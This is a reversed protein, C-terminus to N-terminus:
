STKRAKCVEVVRQCTNEDFMGIHCDEKPINLTKSLWAYAEARSMKKSKWIPDFAAHARSKAARLAANALRGLPIGDQHCGVWAQCMHCIYFNKQHLDPRHPYIEAGTTKQSPNHCYSCIPPKM